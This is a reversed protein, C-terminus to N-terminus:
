IYHPLDMYFVTSKRLGITGAGEQMHCYLNTCLNAPVRSVAFLKVNLCAHMWSCQLKCHYDNYRGCVLVYKNMACHLVM